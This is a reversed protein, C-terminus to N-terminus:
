KDKAKIAKALCELSYRSVYTSKFDGTYVDKCITCIPDNAVKSRAFYECEDCSFNLKYKADLRVIRKNNKKKQEVDYNIIVYIAVGIVVCMLIIVLITTTDITNM